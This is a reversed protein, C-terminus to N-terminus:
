RMQDESYSAPRALLTEIEAMVDARLPGFELAGAIEQIQAASKAGPIPVNDEHKARLWCLAGQVLSRGDSQLLERIADLRALFDPNPAHNQFYEAHSSVAQGRVDNEPIRSSADYKGSLLGMALPSRLLTLLRKEHAFAQINPADFFVNMAHEVCGFGDRDVTAALKETFDTSWGFQEIKGQQRAEELVDLMAQSEDITLENPHLLVVDIRDRQLRDRCADVAPMVTSPDTQIGTLQRTQEDIGIAIKTVLVVDDKDSLAAGLLRESHGAGYAAATDFLRIGAEYAAEITQRSQADTTNTYGVSKGDWYMEGGIPWCGMGLPPINKSLVQM